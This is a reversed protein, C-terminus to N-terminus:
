VHARGIENEQWFQSLFIVRAGPDVEQVYRGIAEVIASDGPNRHSYVNNVLVLNDPM